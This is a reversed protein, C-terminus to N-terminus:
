WPEFLALRSSLLTDIATSGGARRAGEDNATEWYNVSFREEEDGDDAHALLIDYNCPTKNTENADTHNRHATGRKQATGTFTL